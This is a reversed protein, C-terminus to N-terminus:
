PKLQVNKKAQLQEDLTQVFRQSHDNSNKHGGSRNTGEISGDHPM